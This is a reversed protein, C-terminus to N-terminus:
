FYSFGVNRIKVEVQSQPFCEEKTKIGDKTMVKVKAWECDDPNKLCSEKDSGRCPACQGPKSFIGENSTKSPVWYCGRKSKCDEHSGASCESSCTLGTHPSGKNACHGLRVDHAYVNISNADGCRENPNGTCPTGCAGRSGGPADFGKQFEWPAVCQKDVNCRLRAITGKPNCDEDRACSEVKKDTDRVCHGEEKDTALSKHENHCLFNKPCADPGSKAGGICSDMHYKMRQNAKIPNQNSCICQDEKLGFYRYEACLRDCTHVDNLQISRFPVASKFFRDEIRSSKPLCTGINTNERKTCILGTGYGCDDEMTCPKFHCVGGLPQNIWNRIGEFQDKVLFPVEGPFIEKCPYKRCLGGSAQLLWHRALDMEKEIVSPFKEAYSGLPLMKSVKEEFVKRDEKFMKKYLAKRELGNKEKLEGTNIDVCQYGPACKKGELINCSSVGGQVNNKDDPLYKKRNDPVAYDFECRGYAGKEVEVDKGLKQDFTVCTQHPCRKLLDEGGVCSRMFQTRDSYCGMHKTSHRYLLVTDKPVTEMAKIDSLTDIEDNGKENGHADLKKKVDDEAGKQAKGKKVNDEDEQQSEGKKVNDEAGQLSEGKKVNDEVGQQSKKVDDTSGKQSLGKKVDDTSGKESVNKEIDNTAGKQTVNKKIDDTDAGKPRGTNSGMNELVQPDDGETKEGSIKAEEAKVLDKPKKIPLLPYVDPSSRLERIGSRYNNSPLLPYPELDEEVSQGLSDLVISKSEMNPATQQSPLHLPANFQPAPGRSGPGYPNFPPGGPPRMMPPGGPPGGKGPGYPNFPPGGPPRMMPPGGPPGNMPPGGPPGNMPPGGPPRMMPPGGPPRMMPPGGPPRMMPPGGPPDSIPEVPPRQEMHMMEGKSNKNEETMKEFESDAAHGPRGYEPPIRDVFGTPHRMSIKTYLPSVHPRNQPHPVQLMATHPVDHPHPGHQQPGGPPGNMPPGGPPGNMPPGGPPGNMPPGGPPGNMPPGGPPGNMPPRNPFGHHPPFPHMKSTHRRRQMEQEMRQQEKMLHDHEEQSIPELKKGFDWPGDNSCFCRKKKFNEIGFYEFGDCAKSCSKISLEKPNTFVIQGNMKKPSVLGQFNKPEVYLGERGFDGNDDQRCIGVKFPKAPKYRGTKPDKVSCEFGFACNGRTSSINRDDGMCPMGRTARCTGFMGYPIIPRGEIECVAGVGCSGQGFARDSPLRYCRRVGNMTDTICKGIEKERAIGFRTACVLGKGCQTQHAIRGKATLNGRCPDGAELEKLKGDSKLLETFIPKKRGLIWSVLGAVHQKVARAGSELKAESNHMMLKFKSPPGAQNLAYQFRGNDYRKKRWAFYQDGYMQLFDDKDKNKEPDMFKNIWSFLPGGRSRESLPFIIRNQAPNIAGETIEQIEKKAEKVHALRMEEPSPIEPGNANPKAKEEPSEKQDAKVNEEASKPSEKQDAKANEEASKPSEKQDAKANEEALKPSEKQDAKANEEASKPSEKQGAKANEEASKPSEKKDAKASDASSKPAKKGDPGTGDASPEPEQKEIPAKEAIAKETNLKAKLPKEAMEELEQKTEMVEEKHTLPADKSPGWNPNGLPRYNTTTTDAYSFLDLGFFSTKHKVTRKTGTGHLHSEMHDNSPSLTDDIQVLVHRLIRM